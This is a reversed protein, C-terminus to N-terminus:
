IQTLALEYNKHIGQYYHSIHNNNETQQKDDGFYKTPSDWKSQIRWHTM